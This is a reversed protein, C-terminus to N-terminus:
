KKEEALIIQEIKGHKAFHSLIEMQEDSEGYFVGDVPFVPSGNSLFYKRLHTAKYVAQAKSARTSDVKFTVVAAPAALIKVADTSGQLGSVISSLKKPDEVVETNKNGPIAGDHKANSVAAARQKLLEQLSSM